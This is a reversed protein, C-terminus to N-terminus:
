YKIILKSLFIKIRDWFLLESYKNKDFDSKNGLATKIYRRALESKKIKRLWIEEEKNRAHNKIIANYKRWEKEEDIAKGFGSSNVDSVRYRVLDQDIFLISRDRAELIRLWYDYDEITRLAEDEHLLGIEKFCVSRIVVTSNFVSNARLLSKRSIRRTWIKYFPARMEGPFLRIATSCALLHPSVSLVKIQITLKSSLWIDDSDLFAVFEGKAESIGKNRARAIIGNNKFNIVRIRRDNYQDLIEGTNDTSYNNIIILEWNGYTQHIVSDVAERIFAGHNYTPMIISILPERM